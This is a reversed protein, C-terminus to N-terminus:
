SKHNTLQLVSISKQFNLYSPFCCKKNVSSKLIEQYKTDTIEYAGFQLLHKNFFQSDLLFFNEKKLISVLFLLALKSTNKKISFMSEGFFCGGLHVGYLGGVLKENEYCEISKAFGYNFLQIYSNIITKNIWTDNDQVRKKACHNIVESFKKNILFNYKTKKYESFLKKPIHFNKIPIIFRKEPKYFNIKNTIANEAMPFYGKKYFEILQISNIIKDIL